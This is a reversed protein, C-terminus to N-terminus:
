KMFPVPVHAPAFEARRCLVVGEDLSPETTEYYYTLIDFVCGSTGEGGTTSSQERGSNNSNNNGIGSGIAGSGPIGLRIKQSRGPGLRDQRLINGSWEDSGVPALHVSSVTLKSRNAFVFGIVPGSEEAALFNPVV